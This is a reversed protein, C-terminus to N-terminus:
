ELTSLSLTKQVTAPRVASNVTTETARVTSIPRATASSMRRTRGPTRIAMITEIINTQATGCSTETCIKRQITSASKPTTL